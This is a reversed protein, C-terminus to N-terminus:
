LFAEGTAIIEAPGTLYLIDNEWRVRQEGGPAIVRLDHPLGRTAM